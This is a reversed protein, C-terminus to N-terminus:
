GSCSTSAAVIVGTATSGRSATPEPQAAEPPDIRLIWADREDGEDREIGYKQLLVPVVAELEAHDDVRHALGRYMREGVRVRVHPDALIKRIWRKNEPHRSPVYLRGQHVVFWVTVSYPDEPDTELQITQADGAFSWDTVPTSVEEGSLRGGPIPGVPECALVAFAAVALVPCSIRV